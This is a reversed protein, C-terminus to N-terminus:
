VGKGVSRREIIWLPDGDTDGNDIVFGTVERIRYENGPALMMPVPGSVAPHGTGQVIVTGEAVLPHIKRDVLEVILEAGDRYSRPM